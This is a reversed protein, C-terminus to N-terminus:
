VMINKLSKENKFSALKKKDTQNMVDNVNCLFNFDLCYCSWSTIIPVPTADLNWPQWSLM